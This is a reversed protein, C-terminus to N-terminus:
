GAPAPAADGSSNVFLMPMFVWCITVEAVFSAAVHVDYYHHFVAQQMHLKYCRYGAVLASCSFRITDYTRM